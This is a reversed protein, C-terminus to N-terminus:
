IRIYRRVLSTAPLYNKFDNSPPEESVIKRQFDLDFSADIEEAWNKYFSTEFNSRLNNLKKIKKKEHLRVRPLSYYAAM